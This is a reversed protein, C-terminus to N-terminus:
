SVSQDSAQEKTHFPGVYAYRQLTILKPCQVVRWTRHQKVRYWGAAFWSKSKATKTFLPLGHKVDWLPNHARGTAKFGHVEDPPAKTPKQLPEFEVGENRSLMPITKYNATKNSITIQYGNDVAQINGVKQDGQKLIWYQKNVVPKAILTM